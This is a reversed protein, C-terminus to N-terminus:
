ARDELQPIGWKKKMEIKLSIRSCVCVILFYKKLPLFTTVKFATASKVLLSFGLVLGQKKM